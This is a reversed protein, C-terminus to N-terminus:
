LDRYGRRRKVRAVAELVQGAEVESTFVEVLEQGDTGIRGQNRVLTINGFLNPGIKRFREPKLSNSCQAAALKECNRSLTGLGQMVRILILDTEVVEAEVATGEVRPRPECAGGLRAADGGKYQTPHDGKGSRM